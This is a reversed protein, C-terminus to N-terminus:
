ASILKKFILFFDSFITLNKKLYTLIPNQFVTIKRQNWIPSKMRDFTLAWFSGKKPFDRFFWIILGKKFDAYLVPNKSGM